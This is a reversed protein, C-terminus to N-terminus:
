LTAYAEVLDIDGSQLKKMMGPHVISDPAASALELALLVGGGKDLVEQVRSAPVLARRDTIFASACM